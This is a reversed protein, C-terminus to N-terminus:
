IVIPVCEQEPHTYCCRKKVYKKQCGDVPCKFKPESRTVRPPQIPAPQVSNQAFRQKFTERQSLPWANVGDLLRRVLDAPAVNPQDTADEDGDSSDTDEEIDDLPVALSAKYADLNKKTITKDIFLCIGCASPTTSLALCNVHFSHGCHFMKLCGVVDERACIFCDVLPNPQLNQIQFSSPMMKQPILANSAAIYYFTAGSPIIPKVERSMGLKQRIKEFHSVWFSAALDYMKVILAPPYSFHSRRGFVTAFDSGEHILRDVTRGALLVDDATAGPTIHKRFLSHFGEVFWDDFHFLNKEIICYLRYLPHDVPLAAWRLIDCIYAPTIKCYNKRQMPNFLATTLRLLCLLYAELNGSKFHITYVDLVLPVLNDIINIFLLLEPDNIVPFVKLIQRRVLQWGGNAVTLILGIRWPKPTKALKKGAGFIHQYFPRWLIDMYKIVLMERSNLSVHLPGLLVIINKLFGTAPNPNSLHHTVLKRTYFQGPFDCVFVFLNKCFYQLLGKECLVNLAALYDSASKLPHPGFCDILNCGKLLRQQHTAQLLSDYQHCLIQFIVQDTESRQLPFPAGPLGPSVLKMENYSQSLYEMKQDLFALAYGPIIEVVNIIAMPPHILISSATLPRIVSTAMNLVNHTKVKLDNGVQAVLPTKHEWIVTFDDLCGVIFQEQMTSKEIIKQLRSEHSKSIALQDRYITVRHSMTGLNHQMEIADTTMKNKNFLGNEKQFDRVFKDSGNILNMVISVTRRQISAQSQPSKQSPKMSDYIELIFVLNSVDEKEICKLFSDWDYPIKTGSQSIKKVTSTLKAVKELFSESDIASYDIVETETDKELDDVQFNIKAKKPTEYYTEEFEDFHQRPTFKKQFDSRCIKMFHSICLQSEGIVLIDEFRERANIRKELICSEISSAALETVTKYNAEESCLGFAVCDLLMCPGNLKQRPM